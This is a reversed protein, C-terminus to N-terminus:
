LGQGSPSSDHLFTRRPQCYTEDPRDPDDHRDASHRIAPGSLNGRTWGELNRRDLRVVGAALVCSTVHLGPAVGRSIDCQSCQHHVGVSELIELERAAGGPNTGVME